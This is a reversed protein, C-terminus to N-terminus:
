RGIPALGRAVGLATTASHDHTPVVVVGARVRAVRQVTRFAAARDQDVFNGPYSPRQRVSALQETHWVADGALLVPGTPTALLVGVSGPTHGAMDVLVVSGDGFLDHSAGFTLVPPGDLDFRQIQRGALAARVGMVPPVDGASVWDHEVSHLILPLGPLDDLGGVHDWHAHTTLALDVEIGTEALVDATPLIDPNPTFAPRLMLPQRRSRELANQSVAPDVLLRAEPHEVVFTAMSIDLRAPTRVGEAIAWTPVRRPNQRLTRVTVTRTARPLGADVLSTMFGDDARKPALLGVPLGAAARCCAALSPQMWQDTM